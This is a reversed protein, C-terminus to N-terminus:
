RVTGHISCMLEKCAYGVLVNGVSILILLKGCIAKQVCQEHMCIAPMLQAVAYRLTSRTLLQGLNPSHKFKNALSKFHQSFPLRGECM